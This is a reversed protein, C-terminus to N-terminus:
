PSANLARRCREFREFAAARSTPETAGLLLIDRMLQEASRQAGNNKEIGKEDDNDKGKVTIKGTAMAASLRAIQVAMRQKQLTAPSDIKAIIELQLLLAGLAEGNAALSDGLRRRAGDDDLAAVALRYRAAVVREFEDPLAPLAAWRAAANEAQTSDDDDRLAIAEIEACLQSKQRLTQHLDRERARSAAEVAKQARQIANRYRAEIKDAAAKPAAGLERWRQQWSGIRAQLGDGDGGGDGCASEIEACLAERAALGERLEQKFAKHARERQDQIADCAQTFRKWIAREQGRSSAITPTWRRKMAQLKKHAAADAEGQALQEIEAILMERGKYNRAREREFKDNFKQMIADFRSQLAKRSQHDSAGANRWESVRARTLRQSEKWDPERWDIDDFAQELAACIRERARGSQERRAKQQDFHAQCPQYAKVCARNFRRYLKHESGEGGRDWQQWQERARQIRKAIQPLTAGSDHIREIAEILHERAQATGWKRWAALERLKPRLADLETIIRQRRQQSLGAIRNLAAIAGQELRQAEGVDGDRVADRLRSLDAELEGFQQARAEVQAHIRARLRAFLDALSEDAAGADQRASWRKRLRKARSEDIGGGASLLASVERALPDDAVARSAAKGVTQDAPQHPSDPPDAM